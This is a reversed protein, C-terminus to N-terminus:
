GKPDIPTLRGCRAEIVEGVVLLREEDYRGGILQAGM